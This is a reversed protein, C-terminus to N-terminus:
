YDNLDVTYAQCVFYNVAELAHALVSNMGSGIHKFLQQM